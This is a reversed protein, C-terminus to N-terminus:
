ASSTSTPTASIPVPSRLYTRPPFGRRTASLRRRPGISGATVDGLARRARRPRPPLPLAHHSPASARPPRRAPASARRPQRPSGCARRSPASSCRADKLATSRSGRPTPVQACRRARARGRRVRRVAPGRRHPHPAPRALLQGQDLSLLFPGPWQARLGRSAGSTAGCNIRPSSTSRPASASRWRGGECGEM